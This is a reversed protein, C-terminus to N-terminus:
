GHKDLEEDFYGDALLQSYSAWTILEMPDIGTVSVIKYIVSARLDTRHENVWTSVTGFQVGVMQAFKTYTIDPNAKLWSKIPNVPKDIIPHKSPM